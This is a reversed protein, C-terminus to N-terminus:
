LAGLGFSRHVERVIVLQLAKAQSLNEIPEVDVNDDVLVVFPSCWKDM